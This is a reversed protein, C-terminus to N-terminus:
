SPDQEIRALTENRRKREAESEEAFDIWPQWLGWLCALWFGLHIFRKLVSWIRGAFLGAETGNTIALLALIFFAFLGSLGCLVRLHGIVNQLLVDGRYRIVQKGEAAGIM